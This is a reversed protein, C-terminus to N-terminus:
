RTSVEPTSSSLAMSNKFINEFGTNRTWLFLSYEASVTCFSETFEKRKINVHPFKWSIKWVRRGGWDDM